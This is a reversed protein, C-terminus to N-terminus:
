PNLEIPARSLTQIARILDQGGLRITDGPEIAPMKTHKPFFINIRIHLIRENYSHLFPLQQVLCRNCPKARHQMQEDLLILAQTGVPALSTKDFNFQGELVTYASLKPSVRSAQLLNLTDLGQIIFQCWLQIPCTPDLRAHGNRIALTGEINTNSTRSCQGTKSCQNDMVNLKPQFSCETLYEYIQRSAETLSKDSQDKLARVLIANSRYKYAVFQCRKDYYSTIPFNGTQDPYITGDNQEAIM